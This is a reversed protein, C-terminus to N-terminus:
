RQLHALVQQTADYDRVGGKLIPPILYFSRVGHSRLSSLLDIAIDVGTRGKELAQQLGPPVQGFTIGDRTLIQVGYFVPPELAQGTARQYCQQFELVKSTEYVAQTLFFEVGAEVKRQVLPVEKEVGRGLDIISGVCFSTPTRLKMGRYDVGQNLQHIARVLETPTFDRVGTVAAVEQETFADGQVVVVNELGLLAAGLLHSQLALKNMDRCALNFIGDKGLDRKLAYATMASDARVSKSPNYAVCLFDVEL